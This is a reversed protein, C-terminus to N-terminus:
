DQSEEATLFPNGLNGTFMRGIALPAVNMALLVLFAVM